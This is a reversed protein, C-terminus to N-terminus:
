NVQVAFGQRALQAQCETTDISLAPDCLERSNLFSPMGLQDLLEGPVGNLAAGRPLLLFTNQKGTRYVDACMARVTAVSDDM